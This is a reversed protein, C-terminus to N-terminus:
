GMGRQADRLTRWGILVIGLRDIEARIEQDMVLNLAEVRAPLDRMIAAAEPTELAVHLGLETVGPQLTYLTERLQGRLAPPDKLEVFRLDDITLFGNLSVSDYLEAGGRAEYLRRPAMRLPLRHHRALEVYIPLFAPHAYLTSMHGDLHSPDLGWERALELQAEGEAMVERLDARAYVDAESPYFFGWRDVLSPCRGRGLVPGWRYRDWESTFTLHVGVDLQPQDRLYDCAAYAWPCPMMLSASTVVGHELAQFTAANAAHCMGLDDGNVILLRAHPPHGLLALKDAVSLAAAGSM